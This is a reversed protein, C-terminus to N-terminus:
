SLVTVRGSDRESEHEDVSNEGANTVVKTSLRAGGSRWELECLNPPPLGDPRIGLFLLEPMASAYGSAWRVEGAHSKGEKLM